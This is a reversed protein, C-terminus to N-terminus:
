NEPLSEPSYFHGEVGRHKGHHGSIRTCRFTVAGKEEHMGWETEGCKTDKVEILVEPYLEQYKARADFGCETCRFDYWSLAEIGPHEEDIHQDMVASIRGIARTAPDNSSLSPRDYKTQEM